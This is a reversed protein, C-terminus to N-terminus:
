PKPLCEKASPSWMFGTPCHPVCRGKGKSWIFNKPCSGPGKDPKCAQSAQSWHSGKPCRSVCEQKELSWHMGRACPEDPGKLCRESEDSWMFGPPCQPMLTPGTLVKPGPAPPAALAPCAAALAALCVMLFTKQLLRM